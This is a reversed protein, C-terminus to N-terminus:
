SLASIVMLGDNTHDGVFLSCDYSLYEQQVSIHQNLDAKTRLSMHPLRHLNCKRLYLMGPKEGCPLPPPTKVAWCHMAHCSHCRSACPPRTSLSLAASKGQQLKIICWTVIQAYMQAPAPASTPLAMAAHLYQKWTSMCFIVSPSVMYELCLGHTVLLISEGPHLDALAHAVGGCRQQAQKYSEPHEPRQIASYTLDICPM